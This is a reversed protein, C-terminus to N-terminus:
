LIPIIRTASRRLRQTSEFILYGQLGLYTRGQHKLHRPGKPLNSPANFDHVNALRLFNASLADALMGIPQQNEALGKLIGVLVSM